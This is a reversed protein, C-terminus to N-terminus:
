FQGQNLNWVIGIERKSASFEKPSTKRVFYMRREIPNVTTAMPQICCPVSFCFKVFLRQKVTKLQQKRKRNESMSSKFSLLGNRLGVRVLLEFILYVLILGSCDIM